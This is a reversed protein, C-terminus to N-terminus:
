WSFKITILWLPSNRTITSYRLNPSVIEGQNTLALYFRVIHPAMKGRGNQPKVLPQRQAGRPAFFDRSTGLAPLALISALKKCMGPM